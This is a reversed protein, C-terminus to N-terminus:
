RCTRGNFSGFERLIGAAPNSRAALLTDTIVM